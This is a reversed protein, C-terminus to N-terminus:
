PKPITLVQGIKLHKPDRIGNASAILHWKKSSGYFKAAIKQITDGKKVMWHKPWVRGGPQAPKAKSFAVRDAAVHQMLNVIADQRLLIDKGAKNTGWITNSGFSISEIVWNDVIDPFGKGSLSVVPPEDPDPSAMQLLLKLSDQQDNDDEFGDFLIPVALRKPEVGDWVSLGRQRARDVVTWGGYGSQITPAAADRLVNFAGVGDASFQVKYKEPFGASPKPAPKHRDPSQSTERTVKSV